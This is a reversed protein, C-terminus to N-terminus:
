ICKLLYTKQFFLPQVELHRRFLLSYCTRCQFFQFTCCLLLEAHVYEFDLCPQQTVVITVTTSHIEHFMSSAASFPLLSPCWFVANVQEPLTRWMVTLLMWHRVHPFAYASLPIYTVDRCILCTGFIHPESAAIYLFAWQWTILPVALKLMYVSDHNGKLDMRSNLYNLDMRPYQSIQGAM